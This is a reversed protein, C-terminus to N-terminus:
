MAGTMKAARSGDYNVEMWILTNQLTYGAQKFAEVGQGAPYNVTLPKLSSWSKRAVPLLASLALGEFEPAAAAWLIDSHMPTMERSLSGVLKENLRATWHTIEEGNLIRAMSRWFNPRLKEEHFALNWAVESPYTEALWRRQLEWDGNRRPSISVEHPRAMSALPAPRCTWSTRQAREVFGLSRYLNYAIPNDDRVQLWAAADGRERTTQLAQLTLLRGIGRRRYDPHVAVNAILYIPKGDKTFPILTLNGIIRGDAEFVFGDMGREQPSSAWSVYNVDTAMRRLYRLYDHGDTDLTDAFCLEILDAVRLLDRRKDLPRLPSTEM